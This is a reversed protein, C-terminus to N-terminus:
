GYILHDHIHTEQTPQIKATNKSDEPVKLKFEKKIHTNVGTFGIYYFRTNDAGHNFIVVLTLTWVSHFKNAKLFYPLNGDANEVCIQEQEPKADKLDFDIESEKRNVFIKIKAPSMGDEGGIITMSRLNVQSSFPIHIILDPDGDNSECYDKRDLMDEKPKFIKQCSGIKKENLAFAENKSIASNLDVVTEDEGLICESCTCEPGHSQRSNM